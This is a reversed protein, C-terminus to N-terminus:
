NWAQGDGQVIKKIPLNGVGLCFPLEFGGGVPRYFCALVGDGLM